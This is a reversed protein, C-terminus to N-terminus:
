TNALTWRAVPEVACLAAPTLDDLACVRKALTHRFGRDEFARLLPSHWVVFITGKSVCRHADCLCAFLRIRYSTVLDVMAIMAVCAVLEAM